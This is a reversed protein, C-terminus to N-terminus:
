FDFSKDASGLRCRDDILSGVSSFISVSVMIHFAVCKPACAGLIARVHALGESLCPESIHSRCLLSPSYSYLRGQPGQEPRGATNPLVQGGPPDERGSRNGRLM